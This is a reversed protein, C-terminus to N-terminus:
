PPDQRSMRRRGTGGRGIEQTAAPTAQQRGRATLAIQDPGARTVYGRGVLEDLLGARLDRPISTVDYLAAYSGALRSGAAVERQLRDLLRQAYDTAHTRHPEHLSM